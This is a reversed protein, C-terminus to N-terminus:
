REGAPGALALHRCDQLRKALRIQHGNRTYFCFSHPCSLIHYTVLIRYTDLKHRGNSVVVLM